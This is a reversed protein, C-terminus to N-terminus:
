VADPLGIEVTVMLSTVLDEPAAQRLQPIPLLTSSKITTQSPEKKVCLFYLKSM